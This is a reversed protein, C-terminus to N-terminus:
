LARDEPWNLLIEFDHYYVTSDRKLNINEMLLKSEASSFPFQQQLTHQFDLVETSKSKQLDLVVNAKIRATTGIIDQKTDKKNKVNKDVDARMGEITFDTIWMYEPVTSKLAHLNQAIFAASLTGKQKEILEDQINKRLKYLQIANLLAPRTKVINEQVKALERAVTQMEEQKGIFSLWIFAVSFLWLSVYVVISQMFTRQKREHAIENEIFNIRIM